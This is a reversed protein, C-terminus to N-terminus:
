WSETTAATHHATCASPILMGSAATSAKTGATAIACTSGIESEPRPM